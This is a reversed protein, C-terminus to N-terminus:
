LHTNNACLSWNSNSITLKLFAYLIETSALAKFESLVKFPFFQFEAKLSYIFLFLWAVAFNLCGLFSAKWFTVLSSRTFNFRENCNILLLLNGSSLTDTIAVALKKCSGEEYTSTYELYSFILM